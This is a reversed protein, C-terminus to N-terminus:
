RLKIELSQLHFLNDGKKLEKEMCDHIKFKVERYLLELHM